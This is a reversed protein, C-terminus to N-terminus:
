IQHPLSYHKVFLFLDRKDLAIRRYAGGCKACSRFEAASYKMEGCKKCKLKVM